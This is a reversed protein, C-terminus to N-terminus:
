WAMGAQFGSSGSCSNRGILLIKKTKNSINRDDINCDTLVYGRCYLKDRLDKHKDLLNQIDEKKLHQNM